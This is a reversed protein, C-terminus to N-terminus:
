FYLGYCCHRFQLSAAGSACSTINNYGEAQEQECQDFQSERVKSETRVLGTKM